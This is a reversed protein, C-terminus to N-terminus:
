FQESVKLGIPLGVDVAETRESGPDGKEVAHEKLTRSMELETMGEM